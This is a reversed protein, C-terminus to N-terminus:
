PTTLCWPHRAGDWRRALGEQVLIEGFSKGNRELRRLQRGYRDTDRGGSYVVEFPGANVLELLRYTAKRGLALEYDCRSEHTEPADIDELRIREGRYRITDGDVVCDSDSYGACLHFAIDTVPEVSRPAEFLTKKALLLGGLLIVVGLALPALSRPRRPPFHIVKMAIVAAPVIANGAYV